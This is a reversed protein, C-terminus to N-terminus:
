LNNNKLFIASTFLCESRLCCHFCVAREGLRGWCGQSFQYHWIYRLTSRAIMVIVIWYPLLPSFQLLTMIGMYPWLVILQACINFPKLTELAHMCSLIICISYSAHLMGPHLYSLAGMSVQNILEENQYYSLVWWYIICSTLKFDISHVLVVVVQLSHRLSPDMPAQMPYSLCRLQQLLIYWMCHWHKCADCMCGIGDANWRAPHGQIPM